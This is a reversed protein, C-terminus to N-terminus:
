RKEDTKFRRHRFVVAAAAIFVVAAGAAAVPVASSKKKILYFVPSSSTFVYYNGDYHGRAIEGNELMVDSGADAKLRVTLDTDPMGYASNISLTHKEVAEYGKPVAINGAPEVKDSLSTGVYFNGSVLVKPDTESDAITTVWPVYEAFVVMNRTMDNFERKSWYGVEDNKKPIKPIEDAKLTEGYGVTRDVTTGDAFIFTIRVKGFDYPIGDMSIMEEYSIPRTKSSESSGNIASSGTEVYVNGKIEADDECKGAVSGTKESGDIEAASRNDILDNGLGVIGGVYEDGSISMFVNSRGIYLGSSGAIGGVYRSDAAVINGMSSCQYIAGDEARGVIGGVHDKSAIINNKNICDKIVASKTLEYKMSVDGSSVTEFDSDKGSTIDIAGAIGGVNFDGVIAGSNESSDVEGMGVNNISVNEVSIDDYIEREKIDEKLDGLREKAEDIGEETTTSIKRIQETIDDLRDRIIKDSDKVSANLNDSRESIKDIRAQIDDSTKREDAKYDDITSRCYDSLSNIKDRASNLRDKARKTKKDLQKKESGIANILSDIDAAVKDGRSAIESVAEKIDVPVGAEAAQKVRGILELTELLLEEPDENVSKSTYVKTDIEIADFDSRIDDLRSYIENEIGDNKARYYAKYNSVTARLEDAENRIADVNEQVSDDASQVEKNLSDTLSVLEDFEDQAKDLTDEEYSIRAYPELIGVIGGINRRGKVEGRNKCNHVLGRNYGAVGGTMMTMHEEGVKGDNLSGKILGTNEGAIGGTHCVDIDKLEMGDDEDDAFEEYATVTSANVEGENRAGSVYGENFGVIGGSRKVGKVEAGNVCNIVNASAMNRGVVGGTNRYATIKGETKCNKVTGYNIGAVMGINETAYNESIAASVKLDHVNGDATIMGILGTDSENGSLSLGSITHSRGDLEGAFIKISEFKIGSLDIDSTLAYRRNKTYLEVSSEESLKVLDAATAIEVADMTEAYTFTPINVLILSLAIIGALRKKILEYM